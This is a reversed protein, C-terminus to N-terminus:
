EREFELNLGMGSLYLTNRDLVLRCGNRLMTHFVDEFQSLVPDACLKLTAALQSVRFEGNHLRGAGSFSNCANGSIQLSEGFQIFPQVGEDIVFDEGGMKQLIFKNGILAAAVAEDDVATAHDLHFVFENGNDQMILDHDELRLVLGTKLLDFFKSELKSLEERSCMMRTSVIEDARVIGDELSSPGRFQNCMRGSLAMGAGFEVYPRPELPFDAGDVSILVFKKGILDAEGVAVVEVEGAWVPLSLACASLVFIFFLRIM